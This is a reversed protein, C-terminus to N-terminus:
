LNLGQIIVTRQKKLPVSGAMTIADPGNPIKLLKQIFLIKKKPKQGKEKQIGTKRYMIDVSYALIGTAM